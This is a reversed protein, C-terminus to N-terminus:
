SYSLGWYILFHFKEYSRKVVFFQPSCLKLQLHRSPSPSPPAPAAMEVLQLRLRILIFPEVVSPSRWKLNSHLFNHNEHRNQQVESWQSQQGTYVVALRMRSCSKTEIRLWSRPYSPPVASVPGPGPSRSRGLALRRCCAQCWSEWSCFVWPLYSSLFVQRKQKM